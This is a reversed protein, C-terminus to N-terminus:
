FNKSSIQSLARRISRADKFRYHLQKGERKGEFGSGFLSSVRKNESLNKKDLQAQYAHVEYYDGETDVGSIYYHWKIILFLTKNDNIKGKFVSAIEPAAPGDQSFSAFPNADKNKNVFKLTLAQPIKEIRNIEIWDPTSFFDIRLKETAPIAFPSEAHTVQQFAPNMVLCIAVAFNFIRKKM